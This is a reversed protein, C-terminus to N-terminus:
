IIWVRCFFNAVGKDSTLKLSIILRSSEFANAWSAFSTRENLVYLYHRSGHSGDLDSIVEHAGGGIDDVAYNCKNCRRSTSLFSLSADLGTALCELRGLWELFCIVTQPRERYRPLESLRWVRSFFNIKENM